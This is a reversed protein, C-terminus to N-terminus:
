FGLRQLDARDHALDEPGYRGVIGHDILFSNLEGRTALGLLRKLEPRTLRGLRYQDLALAELARREIEDASAFRSALEDPIRLVLNM